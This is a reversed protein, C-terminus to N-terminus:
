WQPWRTHFLLAYNRWPKVRCGSWVSRRHTFAEPRVLVSAADDAVPTLGTMIIVDMLRSHSYVVRARVPGNLLGPLRVGPMTASRVVSTRAWIAQSWPGKASADLSRREWLLESWRFVNGFVSLLRIGIYPEFVEPEGALGPSHIIVVDDNLVEGDAHPFMNSRPEFEERM